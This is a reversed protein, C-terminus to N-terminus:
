NPFLLMYTSISNVELFTFLMVDIWCKIGNNSLFILLERRKWNQEQLELLSLISVHVIWWATLFQWLQGQGPQGWTWPHRRLSKARVRRCVAWAMDLSSRHSAVWGVTAGQAYGGSDEWLIRDTGGCHSWTGESDGTGWVSRPIPYGSLLCEKWKYVLYLTNGAEWWNNKKWHVKLVDERSFM